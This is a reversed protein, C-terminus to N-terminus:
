SGTRLNISAKFPHQREFASPFHRRLAPSGHPLVYLQGGKATMWSQKSIRIHISKRVVISRSNPSSLSSLKYSSQAVVSQPLQFHCCTPRLSDSAEYDGCCPRTCVFTRHYVFNCRQGLSDDAAPRVWLAQLGPQPWAPLAAMDPASTIGTEQFHKKLVSYIVDNGLVSIHFLFCIWDM